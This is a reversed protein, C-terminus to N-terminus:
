PERQGSHGKGLSKAGLGLDRLHCSLRKRKSAKRSGKGGQGDHSSRKVEVAGADIEIVCERCHM